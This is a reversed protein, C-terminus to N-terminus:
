KQGGIKRTMRSGTEAARICARNIRAHTKKIAPTVESISQYLEGLGAGEFIAKAGVKCSELLNFCIRDEALHKRKRCEPDLPCIPANCGQYKSCDQMQM